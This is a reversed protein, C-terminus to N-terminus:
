KKKFNLVPVKEKKYKHYAARHYKSFGNKLESVFNGLVPWPTPGPIGMNRFLRHTHSMHYVYILLLLVVCVLTWTLVSVEM